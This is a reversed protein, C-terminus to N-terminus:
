DSLMMSSYLESEERLAYCKHMMMEQKSVQYLKSPIHRSVFIVSSSSVRSSVVALRWGRKLCSQPVLPFSDDQLDRIFAAIQSAVRVTKFDLIFLACCTSPMESFHPFLAGAL